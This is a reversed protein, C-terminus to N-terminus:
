MQPKRQGGNSKCTMMVYQLKVLIGRYEYKTRALGSFLRVIIDSGRELDLAGRLVDGCSHEGIQSPRLGPGRGAREITAKVGREAEHFDAAEVAPGSSASTFADNLSRRSDTHAKKDLIIRAQIILANRGLDPEIISPLM